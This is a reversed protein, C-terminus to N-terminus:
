SYWSTFKIKDAMYLYPKKEVQPSAWGLIDTKRSPLGMRSLLGMKGRSLGMKGRSPAMKGWSLGNERLLPGNKRSLPWKGELPPWKEELPPWKGELPPWKGELSAWIIFDSSGNKCFLAWKERYFRFKQLFEWNKLCLGVKEPPPGSKEPPPGSKEFHRFHTFFKM